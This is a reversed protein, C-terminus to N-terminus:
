VVSKRDITFRQDCAECHWMRQKRGGILLTIVHVTKYRDCSLCQASIHGNTCVYADRLYVTRHSPTPGASRSDGRITGTQWLM